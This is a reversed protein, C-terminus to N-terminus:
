RANVRNAWLDLEEEPSLAIRRISSAAVGASVPCFLLYMSGGSKTM